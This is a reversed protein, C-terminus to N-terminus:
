ARQSDAADVDEAVPRGDDSGNSGGEPKQSRMDQEDRLPTPESIPEPDTEATVTEVVADTELVDEDRKAHSAAAWTKIRGWLPTKEENVPASDAVPHEAPSAACSGSCGQADRPQAVDFPVAKSRRRPEIFNVAVYRVERDTFTEISQKVVSQMSGALAMLSDTGRPVAVVTFDIVPANKREIVNATVKQISVAPVGALARRATSELASREINIAGGPGSHLTAHEHMFAYIVAYIGVFIGAIVVLGLVFLLFKFFPATPSGFMYLYFFVVLLADCILYAILLNRKWVKM